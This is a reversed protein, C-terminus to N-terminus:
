LYYETPDIGYSGPDLGRYINLPSHSSDEFQLALDVTKYEMLHEKNEDLILMVKPRMRQTLNQELVIAVEGNTMEFLSGTPYVGMCQLFQEVLEPQFASDRWNYINQLASYPSKATSFPRQSTM